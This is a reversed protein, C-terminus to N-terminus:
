GGSDLSAKRDAMDVCRAWVHAWIADDEIYFQGARNKDHLFDRFSTHYFAIGNVSKMYVLSPIVNLFTDLEGDELGLFRAIIDPPSIAKYLPQGKIAFGLVHRITNISIKELAHQLIHRYLVDLEAFPERVRKPLARLGLIGELAAVPRCDNSLLRVVTQAYIFHESSNCVLTFMDDNSPWSAPILDKRGHTKKIEAFKGELFTRIDHGANM